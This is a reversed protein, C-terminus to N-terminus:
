LSLSNFEAPRYCVLAPTQHSPGLYRTGALEADVLGLVWRGQRGLVPGGRSLRITRGRSNSSRPKFIRLLITLGLAAFRAPRTVITM